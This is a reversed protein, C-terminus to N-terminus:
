PGFSIPHSSAEAFDLHRIARGDLMGMDMEASLMGVVSRLWTHRGICYNMAGSLM